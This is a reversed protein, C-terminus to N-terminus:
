PALTAPPRSPQTATAVVRLRPPFATVSLLPQARLPAGATNDYFATVVLRTGAPLTVPEKFVYPSPWDARYDKLWLLSEVVGSLNDTIARAQVVLDENLTLNVARKRAALDCVATM